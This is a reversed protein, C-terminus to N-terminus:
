KRSCRRLRREIISIDGEGTKALEVLTKVLRNKDCKIGEEQFETLVITMATRKNGDTFSHNSTMSRVLHALKKYFNREENAREISYDLSNHPFEHGGYARNTAIIKEKTIKDM